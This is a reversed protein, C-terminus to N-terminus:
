SLGPNEQTKEVRLKPAYNLIFKKVREHWDHGFTPLRSFVQQNNMGKIEMEYIAVMMGTRVVGQSCHVLIPYFRLPTFLTLWQNVQTDTPPTDAAMPISLWSVGKERCIRAEVQHRDAKKVDDASLDVVTKIGYRDLVKKLNDPKLLASRYLIGDEVVAFHRPGTKHHYIEAGAVLILAIMLLLIM